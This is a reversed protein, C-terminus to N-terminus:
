RGLTLNKRESAIINEESHQEWREYALSDYNQRLTQSLFNWHLILLYNQAILKYSTQTSNTQYKRDKENGTTGSTMRAKTAGEPGPLLLTVQFYM